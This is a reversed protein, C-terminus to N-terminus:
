AALDGLADGYVRKIRDWYEANPGNQGLFWKKVTGLPADIAKAVTKDRDRPHLDRLVALVAACSKSQVPKPGVNSRPRDVESRSM